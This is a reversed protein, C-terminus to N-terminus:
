QALQQKPYRRMLEWLLLCLMSLRGLTGGANKKFGEAGSSSAAMRVDAVTKKTRKDAELFCREIEHWKAEDKYGWVGEVHEM